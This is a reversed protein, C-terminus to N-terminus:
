NDNAEQTGQLIMMYATGDVYLIICQLCEKYMEGSTYM